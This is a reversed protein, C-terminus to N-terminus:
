TTRQLYLKSHLYIKQKSSDFQSILSNKNLVLNNIRNRLILIQKDKRALETHYISENNISDFGNNSKKLSM